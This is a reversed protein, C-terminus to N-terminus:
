PSSSAPGVTFRAVTGNRRTYPTLDLAQGRVTVTVATKNGVTVTLPLEGGVSLTDGQNLTRNLIPKDNGDHVGIWVQDTANFTVVDQEVIGSGGQGTQPASAASVGSVASAAPESAPASAAQAAASAEASAVPVSSSAANAAAAAEAGSAPAPEAAPGSAMDVPTSAASAAQEASGAAQPGSVHLGRRPALWVVLAGILLVAVVALLWGPMGARQHPLGSDGNGVHFVSPKFAELPADADAPLGPAAQPMLALIPKPDAAFYRCIAAALGRAFTLGPLDDLRGEELAQIKSLTVKLASALLLPDVGAAQRLKRLMAGAQVAQRTLSETSEKEAMGVPDPRTDSWQVSRAKRESESM